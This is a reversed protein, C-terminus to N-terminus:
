PRYARLAAILAPTGGTDFALRVTERIEEESAGRARAQQALSSVGETHNLVADVLMTMLLKYRVPIAGEQMVFEREGAFLRAFEPDHEQLLDLFWAQAM